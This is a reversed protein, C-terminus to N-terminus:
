IEKYKKNTIYAIGAITAVLIIPVIIGKAGAKPIESKATTNDVKTNKGSGTGTESSEGSSSGSGTGAGTQSEEGEKVVEIAVTTTETKEGETYKITIKKDTLSLKEIPSYTYNTIEKSSGDSYTAKVIMGTTDIKEGVKYKTKNPNKTVEIKSLTKEEVTGENGITVKVTKAEVKVSSDNGQEMTDVQIEGTKIEVEGTAGSKVKFTISYVDSTKLNDATAILALQTGSSLDGWNAGATASELELKETDYKIEAIVGNLGQESSVKLTVTFSEGAKVTTKSSVLSATAEVAKVEKIGVAVFLSIMLMITILKKISKKM